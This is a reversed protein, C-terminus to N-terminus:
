PKWTSRAAEVRPQRVGKIELGYAAWAWIVMPHLGNGASRSTRNGRATPSAQATATKFPTLSATRPGTPHPGAPKEDPFQEPYTEM